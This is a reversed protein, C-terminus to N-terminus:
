GSTIVFASLVSIASPATPIAATTSAAHPELLLLLLEIGSLETASTAPFWIVM